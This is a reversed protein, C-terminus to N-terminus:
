YPPFLKNRHHEQIFSMSGSPFITAVPLQLAFCTRRHLLSTVKTLRCCFQPLMVGAASFSTASVYEKFTHLPM